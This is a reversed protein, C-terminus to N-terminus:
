YNTVKGGKIKKITLSLLNDSNPISAISFTRYL